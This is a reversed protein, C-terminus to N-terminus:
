CPSKRSVCVCIFEDKMLDGWAMHNTVSVFLSSINGGAM